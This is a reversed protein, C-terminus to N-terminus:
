VDTAAGHNADLLPKDLFVQLYGEGSAEWAFTGFPPAQVAFSFGLQNM